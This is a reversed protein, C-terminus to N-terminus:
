YMMTFCPAAPTLCLSNFWVAVPPNCSVIWLSNCKVTCKFPFSNSIEEASFFLLFAGIGYVFLFFGKIAASDYKSTICKRWLNDCCPCILRVSGPMSSPSHQTQNEHGDTNGSTTSRSSRAVWVHVHPPKPLRLATNELPKEHSEEGGKINGCRPQLHWM